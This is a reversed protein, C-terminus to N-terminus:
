PASGARHPCGLNSGADGGVAVIKLRDLMQIWGSDHTPRVDDIGPLNRHTLRVM